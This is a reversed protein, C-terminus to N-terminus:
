RSKRLGEKVANDFECEAMAALGKLTIGGPTTVKDIETQPMTKNQDLLGIAGKMTGMVIRLADQESFGLEIGGAVSADLYKFAFAIGCSALSTGAAMMDEEILVAEGMSAFISRVTEVQAESANNHAIFTVSKMISIATNPIVRFMAPASAGDGRDLYHTLTEFDVGAAISVLIQKSYDMQGKIQNLVTEVLWPKVAVVVIDAGDIVASNDEFVEIGLDEAITKIKDITPDAVRVDARDAVAGYVVGYTIAGGMNGAGIISIKM